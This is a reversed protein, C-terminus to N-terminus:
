TENTSHTILLYNPQNVVVERRGSCASVVRQKSEAVRGLPPAAIVVSGVRLTSPAVIRLCLLHEDCLLDIRCGWVHRHTVRERRGANGRQRARTRLTEVTSVIVDSRRSVTCTHPPVAHSSISQSM